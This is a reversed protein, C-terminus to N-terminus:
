TSSSGSLVKLKQSLDELDACIKVSFHIMPNLASQAARLRKDDYIGLVPVCRATAYGIEWATGSDVDTGNLVAVVLDIEDLIQKDKMFCAKCSSEDAGALGADRHPLYTEFGANRCVQDVQELYWREGSTFLPGAVYIKKRTNEMSLM